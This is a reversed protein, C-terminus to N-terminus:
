KMKTKPLWIQASLMLVSKVDLVAFGYRMKGQQYCQWDDYQIDISSDSDNCWTKMKESKQKVEHSTRSKHLKKNKKQDQLNKRKEKEMKSIENEELVKLLPTRPQKSKVQAVALTPLGGDLLNDSTSPSTHVVANSTSPDPMTTFPFGSKDSM